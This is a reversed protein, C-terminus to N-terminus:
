VFNYSDRLSVGLTIARVDLKHRMFMDVTERIEFPTYMM